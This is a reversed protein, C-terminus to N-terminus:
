FFVDVLVTSFAPVYTILMLAVFLAVLFPLVNAYVKTLPKGFRYSALFLNMGVPPTLYGIELNALFIAGLHIPNIGYAEGLPLILPVVVITASFIDMFCGVILLAVNLLLLFMFKSEVYKQLWETLQM